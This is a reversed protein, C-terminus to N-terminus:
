SLISAIGNVISGLLLYIGRQLKGKMVVMSGKTVKLFGRERSFKYGRNDLASLSILNM